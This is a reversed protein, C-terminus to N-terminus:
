AVSLDAKALAVPIAKSPAQTFYEPALAADAYSVIKALPKVGLAKAKEKSM